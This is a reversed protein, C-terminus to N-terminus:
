RLTSQGFGQLPFNRDLLDDQTFHPSTRIDVDSVNLLELSQPTPMSRARLVDPDLFTLDMMDKSHSRGSATTDPQFQNTSGPEIVSAAAATDGRSHQSGRSAARPQHVSFTSPKLSKVIDRNKKPERVSKFRVEIRYGGCDIHRRACQNCTPKTEDCKM